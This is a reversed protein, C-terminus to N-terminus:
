TTFSNDMMNVQNQLNTVVSNIEDSVPPNALQTRLAANEEKLTQLKQTIRQIQNNLSVLSNLCEAQNM